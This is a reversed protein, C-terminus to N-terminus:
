VSLGYRALIYARTNDRDSVTLAQDSLLLELTSGAWYVNQYNRGIRLTSAVGALNGVALSTQAGGDISLKMNTGDLTMWLLHWAGTTLSLEIKKASADFAYAVAKDNGAGGTALSLNGGTESVIAPNDYGNASGGTIASVFMLSAITLSGVNFYDDITGSAQLLQQNSGNFVAPAFGNVTSGAFPPFTAESVSRSGSAGASATGAWPSAAFSARYWGTLPLSAPTFGGFARSRPGFGLGLM